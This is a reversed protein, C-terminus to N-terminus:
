NNTKVSEQHSLLEQIYAKASQYQNEIQQVREMEEEDLSKLRLELEEISLLSFRTANPDHDTLVFSKKETNLKWLFFMEMPKERPNVKRFFIDQLLM